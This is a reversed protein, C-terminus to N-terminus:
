NQRDINGENLSSLTPVATMSGGVIGIPVAVDKITRVLPLAPAISVVPTSAQMSGMMNAVSVHSPPGSGPAGGGLGSTAPGGAGGGSGGNGGGTSNASTASAANAAAAANSASTLIANAAALM